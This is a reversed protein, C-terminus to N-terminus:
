LNSSEQSRTDIYQKEYRRRQRERWGPPFPIIHDFELRERSGCKVCRGQDRQWVFLRVNEPIRQRSAAGVRELNNFADLQRRLQQYRKEHRLVVHAAELRM